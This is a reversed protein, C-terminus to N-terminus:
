FLSGRPDSSKMVQCREFGSLFDNRSMEHHPELHIKPLPRSLSSILLVKWHLEFLRDGASASNKLMSINSRRNTQYSGQMSGRNDGIVPVTSPCHKVRSLPLKRLEMTKRPLGLIHREPCSRGVLRTWIQSNFIWVVCSFRRASQQTSGSPLSHFCMELFGPGPAIHPNRPGRASVCFCFLRAGMLRLCFDRSFVFEFTSVLSNTNRWLKRRVLRSVRLPRLASSMM